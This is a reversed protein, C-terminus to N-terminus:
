PLPTLARRLEQLESERLLRQAELAAVAIAGVARYAAATAHPLAGLHASVARGDGRALPGTLCEVGRAALAAAVAGHVLPALAAAAGRPSFGSRVLLAKADAVLAYTLNAAVAAAAHYRPKAAAAIAVPRMGLARALARAERAASRDGEVAAAVGCLAVAPGAATPFSVLPHISALGRGRRALPRLAAAPVLGSTHLVVTTAPSIRPVLAVACAALASDPVAILVGAAPPLPAGPGLIPIGPAGRRARARGAPSRALIGAVPIGAADMARVLQLGCRGPGVLFWQSLM